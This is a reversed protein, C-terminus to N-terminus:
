ENNELVERWKEMPVNAELLVQMSSLVKSDSYWQDLLPLLFGDVTRDESEEWEGCLQPDNVIWKAIKGLSHRDDLLAGYVERYITISNTEENRPDQPPLNNWTESKSLDPDPNM